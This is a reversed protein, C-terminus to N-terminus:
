EHGNEGAEIEALRRTEGAAEADQQLLTHLQIRQRLVGALLNRWRRDRRDLAFWMTARPLVPTTVELAARFDGLEQWSRSCQLASEALSSDLSERAYAPMAEARQLLRTHIQATLLRLHKAQPDVPLAKAIGPMGTVVLYSLRQRAEEQERLDSLYEMDQFLGVQLLCFMWLMWAAIIAATAPHHASWIRAREWRSSRRAIVPLGNLFCEIDRRLRDVRQYRGAPDKRLARLIVADLNGAVARSLHSPSAGRLHAATEPPRAAGGHPGADELLLAQSPPLPLREEIVRLWDTGSLAVPSFPLQGTVLEYLLVGLAYVDTAFSIGRGKLQEPAAYAQTGPAEGPKTLREAGSQGLDLLKAIGFDMVRVAGAATVLINAPKLDRHLVQHEHAYEVATCLRVFLKLREKVTKRHYDCYRTIPLGAVYEMVIYLVGGETTGGDIFKCIGENSLDALMQREQRFRDVQDPAIDLFKVAAEERGGPAPRWARYVRGFGGLDLHRDIHWGNVLSDERDGAWEPLVIASGVETDESELFDKLMSAALASVEPEIAAKAGIFGEREGEPRALAAQFLQYARLHTDNAM